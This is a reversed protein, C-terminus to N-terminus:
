GGMLYLLGGIGISVGWHWGVSWAMAYLYKPSFVTWIFLHTRLATCAVMVALLSSAVFITLVTIHEIWVANRLVRSEDHVLKVGPAADGNAQERLMAREEQIWNKESGLESKSTGLSQSAQANQSHHLLSSGAAGWWIPGAWNSFFLLVGVAGVNYGSVGNYANSLDISSIANSGGMSFYSAHSLLLVTLTVLPVSSLVSSKDHSSKIPSKAASNGPLLQRLAKLQLEFLLLLPVNNIRTQTILFLTLIDHLRQALSPISAPLTDAHNTAFKFFWLRVM